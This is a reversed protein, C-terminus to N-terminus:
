RAKRLHQLANDSIAKYMYQLTGGHQCILLETETLRPACLQSQPMKDISRAVSELAPPLRDHKCEVYLSCVISHPM